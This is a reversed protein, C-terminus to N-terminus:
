RECEKGYITMALEEAEEKLPGIRHMAEVYRPDFGDEPGRPAYDRIANEARAIEEGVDLYRQYARDKEAERAKREEEQRKREDARRRAEAEQEKTPSFGIPLGLGFEDNLFEIAGGLDLGYYAMVLDLVSGGQHCGFCYWGRDGPYLKMSATKEGHFPCRCFGARNPNLGMATAAMRATVARKVAAALDSTRM